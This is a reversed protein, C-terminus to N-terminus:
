SVREQNDGRGKVLTFILWPVILTSVSLVIGVGRWFAPQSQAEGNFAPVLHIAWILAFPAIFAIAAVLLRQPTALRDSLCILIAPLAVLAIAAVALLIRFM